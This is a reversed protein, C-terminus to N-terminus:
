LNLHEAKFAKYFIGGAFGFFYGITKGIKRRKREPHYEYFGVDHAM